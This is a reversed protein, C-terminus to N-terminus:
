ECRYGKYKPLYHPLYPLKEIRFLKVNPYKGRNNEDDLIRLESILSIM